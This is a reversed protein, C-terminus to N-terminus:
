RPGLYGARTRIVYDAKGRIEVAIRKFSIPDDTTARPYYGLVYQRSLERAIAVFADDLEEDDIPSYVEGGTQRVIEGIRREATLQRLNESIRRTGTRKYNEYATTKIVFIQISTSQLKKLLDNFPTDSVTDEGDSIVVMVRRGSELKLFDVAAMMGDILATAGSPPPMREIASILSSSKSTLPTELRWETAISYLAASDIEPRLVTRLFRIAARKEFNRATALSSSNDFLLALKVPSESTSFEEIEAPQDDISLIFDKLSLGEIPRGASDLVSVPISVIPSSVRIVEDPETPSSVTPVSKEQITKTNEQTTKQNTQRQRGSQGSSPTTAFMVVLYVLIIIPLKRSM